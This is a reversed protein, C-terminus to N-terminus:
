HNEFDNFGVQEQTTGLELAAYVEFVAQEIPNNIEVVRIGMCRVSKKTADFLKKFEPDRQLEDRSFDGISDLELTGALVSAMAFALTGSNHTSSPRGHEQLRQRMRDTRGVYIPKDGLYFVYIGRDPVQPLQGRRDRHLLECSKLTELLEPM